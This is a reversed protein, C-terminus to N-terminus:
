KGKPQLTELDLGTLAEIQDELDSSLEHTRDNHEVCGTVQLQRFLQAYKLLLGIEKEATELSTAHNVLDHAIGNSYELLTKKEDELHDIYKYMAEYLDERKLYRSMVFPGKDIYPKSM